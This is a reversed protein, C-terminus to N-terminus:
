YRSYILHAQKTYKVTISTQFMCDLFPSKGTYAFLLNIGIFLVYLHAYSNFINGTIAKYTNMQLFMRKNNNPTKKQVHIDSRSM